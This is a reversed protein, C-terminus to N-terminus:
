SIALIKRYQANDMEDGFGRALHETIDETIIKKTNESLQEWNDKIVDVIIGSGYTRRNFQYRLASVVIFEFDLPNSNVNYM